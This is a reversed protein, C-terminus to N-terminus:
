EVSIAQVPCDGVAGAVAEVANEPVDAVIVKAKGEDDWDFVEPVMATCLGCGICADKDIHVKKAM